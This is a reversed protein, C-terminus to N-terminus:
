VNGVGTLFTRAKGSIKVREGEIKLYLVGGRKSAQYATFTEQSLKERWYDALKCHASGTVPDENVGVRPAFFRSVFDYEKKGQGTVIVGRCDFANLISISPILCRVADEDKLEIIIDDLAQVVNVIPIKLLSEFYVRDLKEGVKQLPFDLIVRDGERKVKLPGSLSDFHITSRADVIGEEFLIHAAALTAHGCLKVEVTPTFWRLHFCHDKIPKVFVTESLNMEASINLCVEDAPFDEVITVAAPNGKFPESSFADVVFIKM